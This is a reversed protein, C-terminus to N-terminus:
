TLDAVRGRCGVGSSGRSWGATPGNPAREQCWIVDLSHWIGGVLLEGTKRLSSGLQGPAASPPLARGSGTSSSERKVACGAGVDLGGRQSAAEWQSVGVRGGLTGALAMMLVLVRGSFPVLCLGWRLGTGAPSAGVGLWVQLARDWGASRALRATFLGPELEWVTLTRRCGALALPGQM